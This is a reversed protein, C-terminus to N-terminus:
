VEETHGSINISHAVGATSTVNLAVNEALDIGSVLNNVYNGVTGGTYIIEHINVAAGLLETTQASVSSISIDTVVLRLGAGPAAKLEQATQASSSNLKVFWRNPHRVDVFTRRVRPVNAPM